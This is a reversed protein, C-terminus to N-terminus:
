ERPQSRGEVYLALHLAEVESLGPFSPMGTWRIGHQITYADKWTTNPSPEIVFQPPRPSFRTALAAPKGRTAGHCFSCMQQYQSSAQEMQESTARFGRAPRPARQTRIKLDFLSSALWQEARSPESDNSLDVRAFTLTALGLALALAVVLLAILKTARM